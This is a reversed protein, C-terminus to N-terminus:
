YGTKPIPIVPDDKKWVVTTVSTNATEWEDLYHGGTDARNVIKYYKPVGALVQVFIKMPEVMKFGPSAHPFELRVNTVYEGTGLGLAGSHLSFEYNNKTQLNEALVYYKGSMNTKYTIKYTMRESYTGTIIKSARTADTPIRDHIYFNQLKASSTNKVDHIDYMITQGPEARAQAKKRITVGLTVSKNLVELKVVDGNHKIEAWIEKDNLMYFKPATVEKIFYVGPALLKSVAVGKADSTIKDVINGTTNHIEFVAGGLTSGKSVGTIENYDASRKTIVIQGKMQVNTWMIETTQGAAVYFTRPMDDLLYGPAVELERLKYKGEPLKRGIWIYGENDSIFQAIPNDLGDYLLFKAGFIGKGTDGDIKRIIVSALPTNEIELTTRKGQIIKIEHANEDLEFGTVAKTERVFYSGPELGEIVIQGARDTKYIGVQEGNFKTVLFEVSALPVDTGKATKKILLESYPDNTWEMVVPSGWKIEVNRPAPDMHYKDKGKIEQVTYWGSELESIYISGSKDTKFTGIREGNMKSVLFEVGELPARTIEDIKKIVLSGFPRNQFELTVTKSHTIEVTQMNEGLSYGEPARSEVVSYVGPSLASVTVTGDSGSRYVGVLAGSVTKVTFEAGELPQRTDADIKRIILTSKPANEFVAQVFQNNTIQIDKPIDDLVYGDLTKTEVIKYWGPSLPDVIILGDADTTYRGVIEGNQKYLTFEAGKLPKKTVSDIKIIQLGSMKRNYFDLAYTKGYDIEITQTQNEIITFCTSM